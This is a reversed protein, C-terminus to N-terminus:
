SEEGYAEVIRQVINSRQIDGRAFEVLAIGSVGRLKKVADDLGSHGSLDTQTRDGTVVARSGEGLRTLFMKMQSPTCNQAEDLIIFSHNLTRGRMFALPAIEVIELDKLRRAGAPGLMDHLADYFPRLYPNVKAEFDGPLFGLHEGAEVAPRTLVLRQVLGERLFRIAAAVALYTKGTGAPGTGLVLEHDRIADLYVQQNDTRADPLGSRSGGGHRPKPEVGALPDEARSVADDHRGRASENGFLQREVESPALDQGHRLMALVSGIRAAVEDLQADPGQARLSGDRVTLSVGYRQNLQKVHRDYPGFLQRQEDLSLLPIRRETM